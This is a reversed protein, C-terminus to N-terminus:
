VFSLCMICWSTLVVPPLPPVSPHGGLRSPTQPLTMLEGLPGPAFYLSSVCTPTNQLGCFAGRQKSNTSCHMTDCQPCPRPKPFNGGQGWTSGIGATRGVLLITLRIFINLLFPVDTYCWPCCVYLSM